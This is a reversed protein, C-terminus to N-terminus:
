ANKRQHRYVPFQFEDTGRPAHRGELRGHIVTGVGNVHTETVAGVRAIKGAEIEIEVFRALANGICAVPMRAHKQRDIGVRARVLPFLPTVGHILRRTEADIRQNEGIGSEHIVAYLSMGAQPQMQRHLTRGGVVLGDIKVHPM